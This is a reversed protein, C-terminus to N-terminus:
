RDQSQIWGWRKERDGLLPALANRGPAALLPWSTWSVAWRILSRPLRSSYNFVLVPLMSTPIVNWTSCFLNSPCDMVLCSSLILCCPPELMFCFSPHHIALLSCPFAFLWQTQCLMCKEVFSVQAVLVQLITQGVHQSSPPAGWDEIPAKIRQRFQEQGPALMHWNDQLQKM